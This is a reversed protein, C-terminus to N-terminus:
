SDSTDPSASMMSVGFMVVPLASNLSIDNPMPQQQAPTTSPAFTGIRSVLRACPASSRMAEAASTDIGRIRAHPLPSRLLKGHLMHPLTFDFTYVAGGTVKNRAEGFPAEPPPTNVIPANM